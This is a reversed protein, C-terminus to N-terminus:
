ELEDFTVIEHYFFLKNYLINIYLKDQLIYSYMYYLYKLYLTIYM